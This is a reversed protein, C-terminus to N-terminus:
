TSTPSHGPQPGFTVFAAHATMWPHQLHQALGLGQLGCCTSAVMSSAVIVATCIFDDAGHPFGSKLQTTVSVMSTGFGPSPSTSTLTLTDETLGDSTSMTSPPGPPLGM